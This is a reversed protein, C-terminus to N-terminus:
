SGPRLGRHAPIVDPLLKFDRRLGSIAEGVQAIHGEEFIAGLEGAVRLYHVGRPDIGMLRACTVDVASLSRGMVLVGSDVPSGMIPGDGEMAVIGDVIAFHPKVASNIDIITPGIGAWHLMNKPWGYCSGPMVGFLNKMSATMGVWHHTKMKPMSVVWDVQRLTAPLVLRPLTSLGTRNPLVFVDDHNLDVFPLKAQRLADGLGTADLGYLTDTIHGPGEGVIVQAAGLTRFAEAAAYVVEPQTTRHIGPGVEVMNPKLLIRKGRIESPGVGLEGFGRRIVETLSARYDKVAAVFVREKPPRSFWGWAGAISGAALGSALFHRRTFKFKRGSM